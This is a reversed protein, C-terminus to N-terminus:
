RAHVAKFVSGISVGVKESIEKMTYGWSYEDKIQQKIEVTMPPKYEKDKRFNKALSANHLEWEVCQRTYYGCAPCTEVDVRVFRGGCDCSFFQKGIKKGLTSRGNEYTTTPDGFLDTMRVQELRHFMKSLQPRNLRLCM